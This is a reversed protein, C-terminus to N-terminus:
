LCSRGSAAAHALGTTASAWISAHRLGLSACPAPGADRPQQLRDSPLFAVAPLVAGSRQSCCGSQEVCCTSKSSSNRNPCYLVGLLLLSRMVSPRPAARAAGCGPSRRAREAGPCAPCGPAARRPSSGRGLGRSPAGGDRFAATCLYYLVPSGRGLRPVSASWSRVGGDPRRAPAAALGEGASAGGSGAGWARRGWAEEKPPPRGARLPSFCRPGPRRRGGM